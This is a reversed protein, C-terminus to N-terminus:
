YPCQRDSDRPNRFLREERFSPSNQPHGISVQLASLLPLSYQKHIHIHSKTEATLIVTKRQRTEYRHKSKRRTLMRTGVPSKWHRMSSVSTQRTAKDQHSVSKVRVHQREDLDRKLHREDSRPRAVVVLLRLQHLSHRM